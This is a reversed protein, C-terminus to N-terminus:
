TEELQPSTDNVLDTVVSEFTPDAGNNARLFKGDNSSTGHSLKDLTVAQDALKANTVADTALKTTTVAGTAIKAATVGDTTGTSNALKATTVSADAIKANIVSGNQLIASTVTNDSPTGIGVTSGIVTVFLSAGNAPAAGFIIDNGM